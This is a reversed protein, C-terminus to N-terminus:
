TYIPTHKCLNDEEDDQIPDLLMIYNDAARKKQRLYGLTIHDCLGQRENPSLGRALEMSWNLDRLISHGACLPRTHAFSTNVEIQTCM